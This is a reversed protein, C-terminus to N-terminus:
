FKNIKLAAALKQANDNFYSIIPSIPEFNYPIYQLIQVAIFQRDKSILVELKLGHNKEQQISSIEDFRNSTLCSQLEDCSNNPFYLTKLKIRSNTPKYIYVTHSLVLKIIGGIIFIASLSVLFSPIASNPDEFCMAGMGLLIGAIITIVAIISINSKKTIQASEINKIDEHMVKFKEM